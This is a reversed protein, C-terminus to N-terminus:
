WFYVKHMNGCASMYLLGRLTYFSSQVLTTQNLWHPGGVPGRDAHPGRFWESFLRWMQFKNFLTLNCKNWQIEQALCLTNACSCHIIAKRRLM